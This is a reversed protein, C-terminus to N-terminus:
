VLGNFHQFNYMVGITPHPHKWTCLGVTKVVNGLIRVVPEILM